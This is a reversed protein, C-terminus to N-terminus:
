VRRLFVVSERLFPSGLAKRRPHRAIVIKEVRFGSMEALRAMLLDAAIVFQNGKSGHLSNGVIYVLQGDNKLLLQHNVLTRLMDDFYGRVLRSRWGHEKTTPIACLLPLLAADMDKKFGNSSVTYDDPFRVSPHSRVTALRQDRFAKQTSIFGLLWAELKYVETYDINNPYPPSFVALDAKFNSPLMTQPNRGDGLHICGSAYSPSLDLDAAVIDARRRFEELVSARAKKSEFRLARGDRRLGSVPEISGALCLKALDRALASGEAMDIAARLALITALTTPPFYLTNSFTSLGPAPSPIVSDSEALSVVRNVFAAFDRLVSTLARVKTSAVFQLFPNREIGYADVRLDPNSATLRLSSIATTGVGAFSDLVTLHRANRLGTDHLVQGLLSCSFGEKLHFWRHFPEKSNGNPVVLDEYSSDMIVDYRAELSHYHRLLPNDSMVSLGQREM